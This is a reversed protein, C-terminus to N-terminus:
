SGLRHIQPEANDYEFGLALAAHLNAAAKVAYALYFDSTTLRSITNM